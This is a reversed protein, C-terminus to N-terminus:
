SVFVAVIQQIKKNIKAAIHFHWVSFEVVDRQEFNIAIIMINDFIMIYLLYWYEDNAPLYVPINLFM